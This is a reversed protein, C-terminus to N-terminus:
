IRERHFLLAGTKTSDTNAMERKYVYNPRLLLLCSLLTVAVPFATSATPGASGLLLRGVLPHVLRFVGLLVSALLFVFSPSEPYAVEALLELMATNFVGLSLGQLIVGTFTAQISQFRIGLLLVIRSTCSLFVSIFAIEKYKRTKSVVPGTTFGGITFMVWAIALTVRGM